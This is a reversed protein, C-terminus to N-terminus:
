EEDGLLRELEKIQLKADECINCFTINCANNHGQLEKIRDRILDEIEKFYVLSGEDEGLIECCPCSGYRDLNKLTPHEWPPKNM